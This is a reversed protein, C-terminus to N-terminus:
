GKVKAIVVDVSASVNTGTCTLITGGAITPQSMLGPVCVQGATQGAALDTLTSLNTWNTAGSCINVAGAALVLDPAAGVTGTLRAQVSIVKYFGEQFRISGGTAINITSLEYVEWM